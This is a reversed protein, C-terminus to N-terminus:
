DANRLSRKLPDVIKDMFWKHQSDVRRARLYNEDTEDFPLPEQIKKKGM